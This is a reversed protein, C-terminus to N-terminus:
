CSVLTLMVGFRALEEPNFSLLLVLISGGGVIYKLGIFGALGSGVRMSPQVATRGRRREEIGIVEWRVGVRGGGSPKAVM